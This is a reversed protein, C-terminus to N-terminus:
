ANGPRDIYIRDFVRDDTSRKRDPYEKKEFIVTLISDTEVLDLAEGLYNTRSIFKEIEDRLKRFDEGEQKNNTTFKQPISTELTFKAEYEPIKPPSYAVGNYNIYNLGSYNNNITLDFQSEVESYNLSKIETIPFTNIIESKRVISSGSLVVSVKNIIRIWKM